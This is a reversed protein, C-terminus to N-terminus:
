PSRRLDARILDAAKEAIMITPANTNGSTITPMVSADVVRLGGIGHVRLRPDVVADDDIGMRCTGVPHYAPAAKWRAYDAWAADDAPPTPPARDGVVLAQLAPARFIRDILRQAGVLTAVDRDDELFRHVIRPAGDAGLEVRGRAHPQCLTANITVTPERPMAASATSRTEPEIDYALPLFHLQVDPQAVDPRTRAVAMAQVAPAALVGKRGNAFRWAHRLMSLPDTQANLTPQSVFKNQGVSVHEQLNAGVGRRAHRVPIGAADLRDVPGIGSRLLLAASGVTGASVVIERRARVELTADGREVRVGSARAGTLVLAIARSHTLVQLNTRARVPRLFAKETSCRWGDRQTGDTLFAGEMDGGHYDPLTPLGAQACADLFPRCLPHCDRMPSVTLPGGRGHAPHPAGTWDESRQFYPLVDDFSWGTAGLAAWRDFDARLGRIYVQGNISSSGGLLRGASWLFRRGHISPDPAQEYCWDFARNAVLRAFGVPIQVLPSRAEGGAELLLVQLSPDASLRNALVAGATGGGVIVVDAEIM